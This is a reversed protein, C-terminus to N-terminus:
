TSLRPFWVGEYPPHGPPREVGERVTQRHMMSSHDSVLMVPVKARHLVKTATSGLLLNGLAGMGRTGMCIMDVGYEEAFSCIRDAADGVLLHADFIVNADTLQKKVSDLAEEADQEYLRQISDHDAGVRSQIPSAVPVHVYLLEVKPTEAFWKLHELLSAVAHTSSHSGDVALLIKM